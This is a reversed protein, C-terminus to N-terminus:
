GRQNYDANIMNMGQLLKHTAIFPGIVILSGLIQWLWFDSAGVQYRIGRYSLENGIRKFFNHCWILSYIGMTIPGVIFLMLLYNMTHQGDHKSAVVNLEDAIHTYMVLPYIGFTILGLIITKLLGRNTRHQIAPRTNMMPAAMYVPQQVFAANNQAGRYNAGLSAGCRACYAAGDQNNFGCNPCFSM